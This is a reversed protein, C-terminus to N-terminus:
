KPPAGADIVGGGSARALEAYQPPPPKRVSSLYLRRGRLLDALQQLGEDDNGDEDGGDFDSILYVTDLEPNATVAAGLARVFGYADRESVAFGPVDLPDGVFINRRRLEALQAAQAAGTGRTSGSSDRLVMVHRGLVDGVEPDRFLSYAILIGVGLALALTPRPWCALRARPGARRVRTLDAETLGTISFQLYPV